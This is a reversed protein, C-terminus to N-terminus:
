VHWLTLISPSDKVGM